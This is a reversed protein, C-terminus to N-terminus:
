LGHKDRWPSILLCVTFNHYASHKELRRNNQNRTGVLQWATRRERKRQLERKESLSREARGDAILSGRARLQRQRMWVNLALDDGLINLRHEERREKGLRCRIMERQREPESQKHTPKNTEGKGPFTAGVGRHKLPRNEKWTEISQLYDHLEHGM